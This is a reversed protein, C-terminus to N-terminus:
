SQGAFSNDLVITSVETALGTVVLLAILSAALM